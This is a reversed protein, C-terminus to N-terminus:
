EEYPEIETAQLGYGVEIDSSGDVFSLSQSSPTASMKGTVWIPTFLGLDEFGDTSHVHVIQNPPPPPTHICAGVYPVLLFETITTGAYELPLAYGPLQVEQGDLAEILTSDHAEMKEQFALIKAILEDADLGAAELNKRAQAETMDFEPGSTGQKRLNLVWFVDSLNNQQEYTLTVYPDDVPDLAPALDEWALREAAQAVGNVLLLVGVTFGIRRVNAFM